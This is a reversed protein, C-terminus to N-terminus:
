TELLTKLDFDPITINTKLILDSLSFSVDNLEILNIVEAENTLESATATSTEAIIRADVAKKILLRTGMHPCLEKLLDDNLERWFNLTIDNSEFRDITEEPIDWKKLPNGVTQEM